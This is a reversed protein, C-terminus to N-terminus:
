RLLQVLVFAIAAPIMMIWLVQWSAGKRALRMTRPDERLRRAYRELAQQRSRFDEEPDLSM